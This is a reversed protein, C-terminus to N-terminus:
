RCAARVSRATRRSIRPCDAPSPTSSGTGPRCWRTTAAATRSPPRRPPPSTWRPTRPGTRTPRAASASPDQVRRATRPDTLEGGDLLAPLEGAAPSQGPTPRLSLVPADSPNTNAPFGEYTPATVGAGHSCPPRRTCPSPVRCPRWRARAACCM